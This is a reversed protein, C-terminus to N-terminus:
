KDCDRKRKHGCRIQMRGRIREDGRQHALGGAQAGIHQSQREIGHARSGFAAQNRAAIQQRHDIVRERRRLLPHEYEIECLLPKQEVLEARM